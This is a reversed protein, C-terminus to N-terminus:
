PLEEVPCGKVAFSTPTTVVTADSTLFVAPSVRIVCLRGIEALEAMGTQPNVVLRMPLTARPLDTDAESAADRLAAAFRRTQVFGFATVAVLAMALVITGIKRHAKILRPILGFGLVVLLLGLIGPFGLDFGYALALIVVAALAVLNRISDFATGSAVEAVRQRFESMDRPAMAAIRRLQWPKPVSPGLELTAAVAGVVLVWPLVALASLALYDRFEFGLDRASVGIASAFIAATAYGLLYALGTSMALATTGFDRWWAGYPMRESSGGPPAPTDAARDADDEDAPDADPETDDTMPVPHRM